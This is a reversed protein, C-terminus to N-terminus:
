NRWKPGIPSPWRMREEDPRFDRMRAVDELYMRRTLEDATEPKKAPGQQRKVLDSIDRM